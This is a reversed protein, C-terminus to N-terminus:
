KLHFTNWQKGFMKRDQDIMTAKAVVTYPRLKGANKEKTSQIVRKLVLDDVQFERAKVKKHHAAKIQQQYAALRIPDSTTM